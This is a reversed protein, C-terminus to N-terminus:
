LKITVVNGLFPTEIVIKLKLKIMISYHGTVRLRLFCIGWFSFFRYLEQKPAYEYFYDLDKFQHNHPVRILVTDLTTTTNTGNWLGRGVILELVPKPYGWTIFSTDQLATRPARATISLNNATGKRIWAEAPLGRLLTTSQRVAPLRRGIARNDLKRFSTHIIGSRFRDFADPGRAFRAPPLDHRTGRRYHPGCSRETDM